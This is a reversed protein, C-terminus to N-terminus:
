GPSDEKLSKFDELIEKVTKYRKSSQKEVAKKIINVIKGPHKLGPNYVRIDFGPSNLRNYLNDPFDKQNRIKTEGTAMEYLLVGFLCILSATEFEWKTGLYRMVKLLDKNIISFTCTIDTDSAIDKPLPAEILIPTGGDEKIIIKSPNVTLHYGAQEHVALLVSLVKLSVAIIKEFELAGKEKEGILEILKKLSTGKVYKSLMYPIKFVHTEYEYSVYGADVIDLMHPHGRFRNFFRVKEEFREKRKEFEEKITETDPERISQLLFHFDMMKLAHDEKFMSHRFLFVKSYTGTGILRDSFEYNDRLKERILTLVDDTNTEKVQKSLTPPIKEAAGTDAQYFKNILETLCKAFEAPKPDIPIPIEKQGLGPKQLPPQNKLRKYLAAANKEDDLCFLDDFLTPVDKKNNKDFLVPLIQGMRKKGSSISGCIMKYESKVGRGGNEGCTSELPLHTRQWYEETCVMIIFEAELIQLEMWIMWGEEPSSDEYQDLVVDIGYERLLNSFALVLSCQEQPDHSYSILVKGM